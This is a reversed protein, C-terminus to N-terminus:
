GTVCARTLLSNSGSKAVHEALREPLESSSAYEIIYQPMLKRIVQLSAPDQQHM